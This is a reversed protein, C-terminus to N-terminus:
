LGQKACEHKLFCNECDPNRSKCVIRGHQNIGQSIRIQINEPVIKKLELEVKKPDKSSTLGLRYSVRGFHTDVAISPKNYLHGVIVNASKRGVGPLTILEDIEEPIIENFDSILKTACGKINKAKNKYLGTSKIILEINEIAGNSLSKPNPYKAFLEPTIKNVQADTTQATLIVAILLQYGNNYNVMSELNTYHECIKTFILNHKEM